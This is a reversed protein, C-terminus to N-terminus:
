IGYRNRIANYNQLVETASVARNYVKVLAINGGFSGYRRTAGSSVNGFGSFLAALCGNTGNVGNNLDVNASSYNISNNLIGNIYLLSQTGSYIATCSVWTNTPLTTTSNVIASNSGFNFSITGGTLVSINPVRNPGDDRGYGIVAYNPSTGSWRFVTDITFPSNGSSFQSVDFICYDDVADFQISSSVFTPSNTLTATTNNGSLDNWATGSGPYSRPNMADLCFVLGSTTVKPNHVFAM